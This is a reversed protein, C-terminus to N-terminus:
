RNRVRDMRLARRVASKHRVRQLAERAAMLEGIRIDVEAALLATVEDIDAGDIDAEQAFMMPEVDRRYSLDMRKCFERPKENLACFVRLLFGDEVPKDGM